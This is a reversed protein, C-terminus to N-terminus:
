GQLASWDKRASTKSHRHAFLAPLRYRWSTAGHANLLRYRDAFRALSSVCLQRRAYGVSRWTGRVMPLCGQLRVKQFATEATQRWTSVGAEPRNHRCVLQYPQLTRGGIRWSEGIRARSKWVRYCRCRATRDKGFHCCFLRSRRRRYDCHEENVRNRITEVTAVFNRYNSWACLRYHAFLRNSVYFALCLKSNQM